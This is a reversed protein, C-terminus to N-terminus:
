VLDGNKDCKVIQTKVFSARFERFPCIESIYPMYEKGDEINIVCWRKITEGNPGYVTPQYTGVKLKIKPSQGYLFYVFEGEHLYEMCPNFGYISLINEM